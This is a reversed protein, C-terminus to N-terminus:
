YYGVKCCLHGHVRPAAAAGAVGAQPCQTKEVDNQSAPRNRREVVSEACHKFVEM